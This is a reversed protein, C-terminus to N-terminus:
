EDVFVKNYLEYRRKEYHAPIRSAIWLAIAVVPLMAQYIYGLYLCGMLVGIVILFYLMYLASTNNRFNGINKSSFLREIYRPHHIASHIGIPTFLIVSLVIYTFIEWDLIGVGYLLAFTFVLDMLLPAFLSVFWVRMLLKRSGHQLGLMMWSERFFGALNNHVYTYPVIPMLLSLVYFKALSNEAINGDSLVTFAYSFILVKGLFIMVITFFSSRRRFYFRFAFDEASAFQERRKARVKQRDRKEGAIASIAFFFGGSLVIAVLFYATQIWRPESIGLTALVFYVLLLGAIPLYGIFWFLFGPIEQELFVKVSRETLILVILFLVANLGHWITYLSGGVVMMIIFVLVYMYVLHITDGLLNLATKFHTTVPYSPHLFESRPRFSPVYNVMFVVMMVLSQLGADVVAPTLRPIQNVMLQDYLYGYFWGSFAVFLLLLFRLLNWWLANKGLFISKLRVIALFRSVEGFRVRSSPTVPAAM